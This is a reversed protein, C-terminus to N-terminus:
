HQHNYTPMEEEEDVQTKKRGEQTEKDQWEKEFRLFLTTGKVANGGMKDREEETMEAM